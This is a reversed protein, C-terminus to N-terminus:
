KKKTLCPDSNLKSFPSVQVSKVIKDQISDLPLKYLIM